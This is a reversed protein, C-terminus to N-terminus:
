IINVQQSSIVFAPHTSSSIAKFFFAGVLIAGVHIKVEYMHKTSEGETGQDVVLYEYHM